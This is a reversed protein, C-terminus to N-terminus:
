KGVGMKSNLGLQQALNSVQNQPQQGTQQGQQSQGTPLQPQQIQNLAMEVKLPNLGIKKAYDAIFIKAAPNQAIAPNSIVSLFQAINQAEVTQNQQEGTILIDYEDELDNFFGEEIDVFRKAGNKRYTEIAKQVDAQKDEATYPEGNLMKEMGVRTAYADAALNDLKDLDEASGTFMLIHAPTIDKKLQPMVHENIFDQMSIGLNERKYAYISTANNQQTNVATATTSAPLTSGDLSDNSFTLKQALDEFLEEESQFGALNREQNEIPTIGTNSRIVDGSYLDTLINNVITSDKTQFINLASVEMSIRKQNAMENRREQLPFLDEIVGVGLWRGITKQYHFDQFPWDKKWESQFLVKGKEETIDGEQSQEFEYAEGVIFLSRVSADSDNKGFMYEPVEGYREYVTIYPTSIIQNLQGSREYSQPAASRAKNNEILYEVADADWGDKIKARLESPTLYHKITIFRSDRINEVTPDFFTRRLDMVKAGRKTKKVLVSGYIPLEDAIQNLLHNIKNKKLWLKLEKELLFIEFDSKPNMPLLKIDKTDLNLLRSAILCAPKSINFFLRERGQYDMKNQMQSNFYLHARRITWYTSFIYGEVIEIFNFIYNDVEGRILSFINIKGEPLM